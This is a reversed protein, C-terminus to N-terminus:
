DAPLAQLMAAKCQESMQEMHPEMCDEIRGEGPQVDACFKRVDSSCAEGVAAVKLVIVQCSQSLENLYQKACDRIRGEGPKVDACLKQIDGVCAPLTGPEQALAASRLLILSIGIVLASKLM